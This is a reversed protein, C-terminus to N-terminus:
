VNTYFIKLTKGDNQLSLQVNKISDKSFVLERGNESILEIRTIESNTIEDTSLLLTITKDEEIQKLRFIGEFLESINTKNM